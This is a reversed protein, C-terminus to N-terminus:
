RGCYEEFAKVIFGAILSKERARDSELYVGSFGREDYKKLFFDITDFVLKREHEQLQEEYRM